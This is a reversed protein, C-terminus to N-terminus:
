SKAKTQQWLSSDIIKELVQVATDYSVKEFLLEETVSEYDHRYVEKIIITKLLDKLDIGDQASLCAPHKAREKRTLEFLDKLEDDIKVADYLKYLDYIHRSHETIKDDIYYDGLAFLKEIFTRRINQVKIEFTSLSFQKIIDDRNEKKLYDYIMSAATMKDTPHSRIFLSTEVILNQKLKIFEFASPFDIIYKNYDRRSRVDDTNNLKFNLRNIAWVINAKLEKRQGETPRSACDLNLDIDESFRQILKYCKSLSTGGKFIINPQKEILLKLFATVYYDKEIIGPQVGIDESVFLIIQRFLEKDHHLTM